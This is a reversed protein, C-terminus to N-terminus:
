SFRSAASRVTFIEEACPQSVVMGNVSWPLCRYLEAGQQAVGREDGVESCCVHGWLSQQGGGRADGGEGVEDTSALCVHAAAHEGAPPQGGIEHDTLDHATDEVVVGLIGAVDHFKGPVLQEIGRWRQPEDIM